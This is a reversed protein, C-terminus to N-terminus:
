NELGFSVLERAGGEYYPHLTGHCLQVSEDYLIIQRGNVFKPSM